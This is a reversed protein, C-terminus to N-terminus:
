YGGAGKVFTREIDNPGYGINVNDQIQPYPSMQDLSTIGRVGRTAYPVDTYKPMPDYGLAALTVNKNQDFASDRNQIMKSMDLGLDNAKKYVQAALQEPTYQRVNSNILDTKAALYLENIIDRNTVNSFDRAQAKTYLSSFAGGPRATASESSNPNLGNPLQAWSNQINAAPAQDVVGTITNALENNRAERQALMNKYAMTSEVPPPNYYPTNTQEKKLRNAEEIAGYGMDLGTNAGGARLKNIMRTFINRKAIYENPSYNGYM